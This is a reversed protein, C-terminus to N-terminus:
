GARAAARMAIFFGITSLVSTTISTIMLAQAIMVGGGFADSILSVITPAVGYGITSGVVVFAGVCVGRLENPLLVAIATATVLGTVAGCVLSLSLLIVFGSVTPMIPFLSAPISLAAAIVAGILIGGKLNIKQGFDAAFGGLASGVLGSFLVAAGMWGAFEGPELGHIRTLVPASWVLAATDAMVLTVQGFFLPAVLLRRRWLEAMVQRFGADMGNGVEQRAPERLFFLPIALALAMIGFVLHVGRWASLGAFLESGGNTLFAYLWGGLAFALAGGAMQGFSILFLSRGRHAPVSMDSALSIAVPISLVAGIGALMRSFFLLYFNDALVTLFSGMTWLATMGILLRLRNSKDVMRGLPIALIAIPISAALGQILSIQFDSFGMDLRAVEQVPSFAARMSAGSLITLALVLLPAFFSAAAPASVAERSDALTQDAM